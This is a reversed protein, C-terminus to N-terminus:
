RRRNHYHRGNRTFGRDAAALQLPQELRFTLLSEAPVKVAKGRTLVQAGAGAGAGAAAGIAAGKGGGAIAGVIAGVLAGGGVYEATRRNKGIGDRQGSGAGETDASVAYRQANVTVSELDIALDRGSAKKVIVEATSGKPIAVGGNTDLVDQDVVATFVRGDTKKVDIAENTRVSINTGASITRALAGTARSTGVAGNVSVQRFAFRQNSEGNVDYIQVRAGDANTGGPIDLAKGLRSVVLSNEDRDTDFRWQQNSAGSYRTARVPTSNATGVAELASGNTTNRLYYFGSSAPQIDWAQNDTGRSSFQVVSTQDNRDLDLVKGSKVNSIEYRGPGNFGGQADAKYPLCLAWVIGAAVVVSRGRRWVSDGLTRSCIM